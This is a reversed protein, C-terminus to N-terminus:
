RGNSLRSVQGFQAPNVTKIRDLLDICETMREPVADGKRATAM